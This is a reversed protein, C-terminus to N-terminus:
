TNSQPQLNVVARGVLQRLRARDGEGMPEPDFRLRCHLALAEAVTDEIEEPCRFRVRRWWPGLPEGPRRGGLAQVLCPELRYWESDM